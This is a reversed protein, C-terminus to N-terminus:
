VVSKRDTPPIGHGTIYFFGVDRCANGLAKAVDQAQAPSGTILPAVDIVPITSM